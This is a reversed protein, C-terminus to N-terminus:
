ALRIGPFGSELISQVAGPFMGAGEGDGCVFLSAMDHILPQAAPLVRGPGAVLAGAAAGSLAGAAAGSLAGAAAGSLAGAAAPAGVVGDEPLVPWGPASEAASCRACVSKDVTWLIEKTLM